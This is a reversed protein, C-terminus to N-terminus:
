DFNEDQGTSDSEDFLNKQGPLQKAKRLKSSQVLWEYTASGKFLCNQEELKDDPHENSQVNPQTNSQVTSNKNPNEDLHEDLHKKRWAEQFALDEKRWAEQRALDQKRWAENKKEENIRKQERTQLIADIGHTMKQQLRAPDRFEALMDEVSELIEDRCTRYTKLRYDNKIPSVITVGAAAVTKGLPLIKLADGPAASPAPVPTTPPTEKGRNIDVDFGATTSHYGPSYKSHYDVEDGISGFGDDTYDYFDYDAGGYATRGTRGGTMPDTIDLTNDKPTYVYGTFTNDEQPASDEPVGADHADEGKTTKDIAHKGTYERLTFVKRQVKLRAQADAKDYMSALRDIITDRMTESMTLILDSKKLEKEACGKSVHKELGQIEPNYERLVAIADKSMDSVRRHKTGTFGTFSEISSSLTYTVTSKAHVARSIARTGIGDKEALYNFLYQAMPSRCTNGTCVFLVRKPPHVADGLGQSEQYSAQASDQSSVPSPNYAPLLGAIRPASPVSSADSVISSLETSKRIM